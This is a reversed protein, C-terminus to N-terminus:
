IKSCNIINYCCYIITNFRTEEDTIPNSIPTLLFPLAPYGADGILMGDLEHQRYRM